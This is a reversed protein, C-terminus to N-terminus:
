GGLADFGHRPPVAWASVYFDGDRQNRPIWEIGALLEDVPAEVAAALKVLTDIRPRRQGAELLGIETRHLSARRAVAEQSLRARLRSRRLNSGFREGVTM